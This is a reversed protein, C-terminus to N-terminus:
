RLQSWTQLVADDLRRCAVVEIGPGSPLQCVASPPVLLRVPLPLEGSAIAQALHNVLPAPLDRVNRCLDIEGLQLQNSPIPLQLLSGVLALSLALGLVSSYRRDGPLRAQISFDLDNDLELGDIRGICAVLQEIERRPLGPAMVKATQGFRALSVAAQLEAM